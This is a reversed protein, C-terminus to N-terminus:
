EEEMEELAKEAEERTLFVTKGISDETILRIICNLNTMIVEHIVFNNCYKADDPELVCDGDDRFVASGEHWYPCDKEICDIDIEYVTDGVKCPLKILLGQVELKKYYKLEDRYKRMENYYKISSEEKSADSANLQKVEEPELGTDEYEALKAMCEQVPCGKCSNYIYQECVQRCAIEQLKIPMPLDTILSNRTLRNM